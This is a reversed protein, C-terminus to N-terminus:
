KAMKYASFRVVTGSAADVDVEWDGRRPGSRKRFRVTWVKAGKAVSKNLARADRLGNKDAYAIAYCIAQESSRVPPAACQAAAVLPAILLAGATSLRTLSNM